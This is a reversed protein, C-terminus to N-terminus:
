AMKKRYIVSKEIDDADIIEDEDPSSTRMVLILENLTRITNIADVEAVEAFDEVDEAARERQQTVDVYKEYAEKATLLAGLGDELHQLALLRLQAGKPSEEKILPTLNM